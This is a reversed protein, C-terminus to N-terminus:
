ERLYREIETLSACEFLREGDDLDVLTWRDPQKPEAILQYGARRARAMLFSLRTANPTRRLPDSM